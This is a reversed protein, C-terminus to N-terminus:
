RGTYKTNGLATFYILGRLGLTLCNEKESAKHDFDIFVPLKKGNQYIAVPYNSNDPVNNADSQYNWGTLHMLHM